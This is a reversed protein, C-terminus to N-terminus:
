LRSISKGKKAERGRRRGREDGRNRGGETGYKVTTCQRCGTSQRHVNVFDLM